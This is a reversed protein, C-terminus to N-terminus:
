PVHSDPTNARSIDLYTTQAEKADGRREAFGIVRLIRVGANLSLTLVDDLRVIQGPATVRAGNLRVHGARVLDAASTRSRVIRAHFIWVDLRHREGGTREGGM